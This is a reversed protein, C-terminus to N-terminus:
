DVLNSSAILRLVALDSPTSIGAMSRATASSTTSYLTAKQVRCSCVHRFDAAIHAKLLSASMGDRAPCTPQHGLQSVLTPEHLIKESAM